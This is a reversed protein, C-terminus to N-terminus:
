ALLNKELGGPPRSCRAAPSSIPQRPATGAADKLTVSAAAPLPQATPLLPAPGPRATRPERPFRTVRPPGPTVRPPRHGGDASGASNVAPAAGAAQDATSRTGPPHQAARGPPAKHKWSPAPRPLQEAARAPPHRRHVVELESTLM